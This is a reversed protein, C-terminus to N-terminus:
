ILLSSGTVNRYFLPRGAGDPEDDTADGRGSPARAARGSDDNREGDGISDELLSELRAM